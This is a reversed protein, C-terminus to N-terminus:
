IVTSYSLSFMKVYLSPSAGNHLKGPGSDVMKYAETMQLTALSHVQSLNAWNKLTRLWFDQNGVRHM